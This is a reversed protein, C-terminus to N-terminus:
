REYNRSAAATQLTIKQREDFDAGKIYGGFRLLVIPQRDALYYQGSQQFEFPDEKPSLVFDFTDIDILEPSFDKVQDNYEMKLCSKVESQCGFETLYFHISQGDKDLLFLEKNDPYNKEYIKEYDIKNLRVLQVLREMQLNLKNVAQQTKVTKRQTTSVSLFIDSVLLLMTVFIAMVVLIEILSFGKRM